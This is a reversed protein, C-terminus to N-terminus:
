WWSVCSASESQDICDVQPQKHQMKTSSTRSGVHRRLPLRQLLPCPVLPAKPTSLVAINKLKQCSWPSIRLKSLLYHASLGTRWSGGPQVGFFFHHTQFAQAANATLVSFVSSKKDTSKCDAPADGVVLLHAMSKDEAARDNILSKQRKDSTSIATKESTRKKTASGAPVLSCSHDYL